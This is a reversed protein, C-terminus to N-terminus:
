TWIIDEFTRYAYTGLDSKQRLRFHYVEGTTLLENNKSQYRITRNSFNSGVGDIPLPLFTNEDEEYSWNTQDLDSDISHIITSFNEDSSVELEFHFNEFNVSENQIPLEITWSGETYFLSSNTVDLYNSLISSIKISFYTLYNEISDMQSLELNNERKVDKLVREILYLNIKNSLESIQEDYYDPNEFLNNSLVLLNVELLVDLSFAISDRIDEKRNDRYIGYAVLRAFDELLIENLLERNTTFSIERSEYRNEQYTAPFVMSLLPDGFFSITWNFYPMSFLMAEGLTSEERLAIFFPEPLLFGDIGPNSMAGASSLYGNGLALQPWREPSSYRISEAGDYDANYFFLRTTDTSRFFDESGRDTFWGWFFSDNVLQHHISDIYPDIFFTVCNELNLTPLINTQFNTLKNQYKDAQIGHLDSYPDLYFRGNVENTNFALKTNFLIDEVFKKNPGDIRSCILAIESDLTSNSDDIDNYRRFVKRNFLANKEEKDYSYNIRALRSTASIIDLGDYFGGPVNYGLVIVYIDVLGSIAAKIPNEIESQFTSYDALIENSSCNIGILHNMDLDHINQYQLAIDLSDPDNENYVFITNSNDIAM